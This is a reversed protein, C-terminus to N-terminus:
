HRVSQVYPIYMFIRVDTQIGQQADQAVTPLVHLPELLRACKIKTEGPPCSPCQVGEKWNLIPTDEQIGQFAWKDIWRLQEGLYTKPVAHLKACDVVYVSAQQGELPQSSLTSNASAIRNIWASTTSLSPRPVPNVDIHGPSVERTRRNLLWTTFTETATEFYSKLRNIQKGYNPMRTPIQPLSMRHQMLSDQRSLFSDLSTDWDLLNIVLSQMLIDSPIMPGKVHFASVILSSRQQYLHEFIDDDEIM